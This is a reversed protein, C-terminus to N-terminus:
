LAAVHSNIEAQAQGQRCVQVEAAAVHLLDQVAPLCLVAAPFLEEALKLTLSPRPPM